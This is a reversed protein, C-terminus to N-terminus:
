QLESAKRLTDLFQDVEGFSGLKSYIVEHSGNYNIKVAIFYPTRVEGFQKHISYDPDPTIPFPIGYKKRFLEVEYATNGAGIGVIKIKGNLKPDKEIAGYLENVAPAEKQCFPCYMSLIEVIVVRGKIEPARFTSGSGSLGLYSKDAQEPPVTIQMDPLQGGPQPLAGACMAIYASMVLFFIVALAILKKM